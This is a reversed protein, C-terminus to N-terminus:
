QRQQQIISAVNLCPCHQDTATCACACSCHSSWVNFDVLEPQPPEVVTEQQTPAATSTSVLFVRSAQFNRVKKGETKYGQVVESGDQIKHFVTAAAKCNSYQSAGLGIVETLIDLEDLLV